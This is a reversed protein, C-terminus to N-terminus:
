EHPACAFCNRVFLCLSLLVDKGLNNGVKKFGGWVSSLHLGSSPGGFGDQMLPEAKTIGQVATMLQRLSKNWGSALHKRPPVDSSDAVSLLRPGDKVADGKTMTYEVVADDVISGLRDVFEVFETGAM